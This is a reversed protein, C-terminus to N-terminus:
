PLPQCSYIWFRRSVVEAKLTGVPRTRYSCPSSGIELFRHWVEVSASCMIQLLLNLGSRGTGRSHLGTYVPCSNFWIPLSNSNKKSPDRMYPLAAGFNCFQQLIMEGADRSRLCCTLSQEETSM